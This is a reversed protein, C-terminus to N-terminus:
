MDYGGGIVLSLIFIVPVAVVGALVMFEASKLVNIKNVEVKAINSVPISVFDGSKVFAEVPAVYIRIANRREKKTVEHKVTGKLFGGTFETATLFLSSDSVSVLYLNGSNKSIDAKSYELLSYCGTTAFALCLLVSPFIINHKINKMKKNGAEDTVTRKLKM